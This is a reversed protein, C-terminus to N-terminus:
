VRFGLGRFGLGLGKSSEQAVEKVAQDGFRNELLERLIGFHCVQMSVRPGAALM